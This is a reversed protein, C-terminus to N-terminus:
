LQMCIQRSHKATDRHLVCGPHKLRCRHAAQRAMQHSSHPRHPGKGVLANQSAWAKMSPTKQLNEGGVERLIPIGGGQAAKKDKRRSSRQCSDALLQSQDTSNRHDWNLQRFPLKEVKVCGPLDQQGGATPRLPRLDAALAAWAM